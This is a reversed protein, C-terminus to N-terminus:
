KDEMPPIFRQLSFYMPNYESCEHESQYIERLDVGADVIYEVVNENEIVYEVDKKKETFEFLVHNNIVPTFINDSEVKKIYHIETIPKPVNAILNKFNYQIMQQRIHHHKM